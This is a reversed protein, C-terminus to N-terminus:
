KSKCLFRINSSCMEPNSSQFSLNAQKLPYVTCTIILILEVPSLVQSIVLNDTYSLQRGIRKLLFIHGFINILWCLPIFSLAAMMKVDREYVFM